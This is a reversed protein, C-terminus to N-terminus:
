VFYGRLRTLGDREHSSQRKTVLINYNCFMRNNNAPLGSPGTDAAASHAHACSRSGPGSSVLAGAGV